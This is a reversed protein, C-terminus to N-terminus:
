KEIEIVGFNGDERRYIVKLKQDEEGKYIMFSEGSLEMKMIAEEQTFMRVAMKETNVIKHFQFAEMEKRWNEAEIETNIEQVEDKHPELVNVKLDVFGVSAVHKEQLRKKYKSILRVLRDTAKDIASYLNDTCAHAKISFHLFKMFFSVTHDLKQVDLTVFIELINKSFREIKSLKELVYEQIPETVQINKGLISITYGETEFIHNKQM